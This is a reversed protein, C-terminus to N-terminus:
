HTNTTAAISALSLVAQGFVNWNSPKYHFRQFLYLSTWDATHLVDCTRVSANSAATVAVGCISNFM